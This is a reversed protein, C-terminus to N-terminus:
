MHVVRVTSQTTCSARLQGVVIWRWGVVVCVKEVHPLLGCNLYAHANNSCVVYFCEGPVAVPSAEPVIRQALVTVKRRSLSVASHPGTVRVWLDPEDPHAWAAAAVSRISVSSWASLYKKKETERTEDTEGRTADSKETVIYVRQIQIDPMELAAAKSLGPILGCSPSTPCVLV